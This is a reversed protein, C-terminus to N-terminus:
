NIKLILPIALSSQCLLLPLTLTGRSPPPPASLYVTHVCAYGAFCSIPNNKSIPCIELITILSESTGTTLFLTLKVSKWEMNDQKPTVKLCFWALSTINPRLVVCFEQKLPVKEELPYFDKNPCTKLVRIICTHTCVPLTTCTTMNGGWCEVWVCFILCFQSPVSLIQFSLTPSQLSSAFDPPNKKKKKKTLTCRQTLRTKNWWVSLCVLGVSLCLLCSITFCLFHPVHESKFAFRQM